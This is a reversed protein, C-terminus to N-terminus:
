PKPLIGGSYYTGIRNGKTIPLVLNSPYERSHHITVKSAKSQSLHGLAIAQLTHEPKDNDACKIRLGIKEGPQLEIGYPRVEINYETVERPTVPIRRKHAHYPQWPKSKELDLERQSGRLWGRTLLTENGDADQHLISIFWLVEEATTEAFLNLIMPGCIETKEVIGGTWFQVEGHDDPADEFSTHNDQKFLEHENLWGDNHLNFPTWRTEPFPWQDGEKWEGSGVMFVRVPKEDELGRDEGKLWHDFWRVSEYQYQYIPRDLYIPPGITLCKPGAWNEFSRFAGPLHLAPLGWCCGLYAPVAPKENYNLSRTEYYDNDLPQAIIEAILAFKEDLPDDLAQKLFPVAQLDEDSRAAEMLEEFKEDGIEDRLLPALRPNSLTPLWMKMFGHSLIGGHYYRDRYMDTYAFPAFIAKLAPPNKAAVLNQVIAFYSMGFMGVNGDCWDQEAIWAIAECIDQISRAGLNDYTGGSAGTGRVNIIIHGYGRRAFFESDGAEMHGRTHSFGEPILDTYQDEKPYAQASLLVPGPESTKPRVMTGDLTIGDSVPITITPETTTEYNRPSTKWNQTFM